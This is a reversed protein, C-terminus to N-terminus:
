YDDDEDEEDFQYQIPGQDSGENQDQKSPATAAAMERADIM